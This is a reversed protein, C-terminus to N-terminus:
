LTLDSYGIKQGNRTVFVDKDSGVFDIFRKAIVDCYHADIEMGM